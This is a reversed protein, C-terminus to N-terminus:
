QLLLTMELITQMTQLLEQFSESLQQQQQETTWNYGVRQSGMSQLMGPKGARWEGLTQVFEQGNLWHHRGVMEDETTGKEEQGWREWCWARELSDARRMLHGFHQRKVKLMLAELSYDPNIEEPNVAKIEKCNLPSELTKEQVATWFCWNKRAWGEEYDLM